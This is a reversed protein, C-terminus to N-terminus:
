MVPEDGAFSSFVGGGVGGGRPPLTLSPTVFTNELYNSHEFHEFKKFKKNTEFM